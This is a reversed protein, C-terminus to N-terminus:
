IWSLYYFLTLTNQAMQQNLPTKIKLNHIMTFKIQIFELYKINNISVNNEHRM